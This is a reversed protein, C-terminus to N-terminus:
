GLTQYNRKALRNLTNFFKRPYREQIQAILWRAQKAQERTCLQAPCARRMILEPGLRRLLPAYEQPMDCPLGEICALAKDVTSPNNLAVELEVRSPIKIRPRPRAAQAQSALALLAVVMTLMVRVMEDSIIHLLIGCSVQSGSCKKPTFTSM